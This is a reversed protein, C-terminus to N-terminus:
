LIHNSCYQCQTISYQTINASIPYQITNNNPSIKENHCGTRYRDSLLRCRGCSLRRSMQPAAMTLLHRISPLSLPYPYLALQVDDDDYLKSTKRTYHQMYKAQSWYVAISCVLILIPKIKYYYWYLGINNSVPYKPHRAQYRELEILSNELLKKTILRWASSNTNVTWQYFRTWENDLVYGISFKWCWM